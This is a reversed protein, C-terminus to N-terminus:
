KKRAIMRCLSHKHMTRSTPHTHEIFGHEYDLIEWDKYFIDKLENKSLLTPVLYDQIEPVPAEDTFTSVVNIGGKATKNKMKKVFDAIEDKSKFCHLLGYAVVVDYKKNTLEDLKRVDACIVDIKEAVPNSKDENKILWDIFNRVAYLSVEIATVKFGLSALYVSNKGEGAGLDLTSGSSFYKPVLKVYKAPEMGWFCPCKSYEDDYQGINKM